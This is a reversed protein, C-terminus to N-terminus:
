FRIFKSRSGCGAKAYYGIGWNLEFVIGAFILNNTASSDDGSYISPDRLPSGLGRGADSVADTFGYEGRIGLLGQFAGDNGLLYAGFGIVGAFYNQFDDTIDIPEGDNLEVSNIIGYKPGIEFYGKNASNRYLINLDFTSWSVDLNSDTSQRELPQEGNNLMFELIVGHDDYNYGVRAGFGLGTTLGLDYNYETSNVIASNFLAAGGYQVKLGADFWTVGGKIQANLGYSMLILGLFLCLKKMYM